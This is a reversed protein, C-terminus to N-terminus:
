LKLDGGGLIEDLKKDLELKKESDSGKSVPADEIKEEKKKAHIIPSNHKISVNKKFSEKERERKPKEEIILEFKTYTYGAPLKLVMSRLLEKEIRLNQKLEPLFSSPLEANYVMYIGENQKKIRYALTKKGWFDEHTIKGGSKTLTDEIEKLKKKVEPERLEPNLILMIEYMNLTSEVVRSTTTKKAMTNDKHALRCRHSM